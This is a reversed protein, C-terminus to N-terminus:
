TTITPVQALANLATLVFLGFAVLRCLGTRPACGSSGNM